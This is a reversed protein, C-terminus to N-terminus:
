TLFGGNISTPDECGGKRIMRKVRDITRLADLKETLTLEDAGQDEYYDRSRAVGDEEVRYLGKNLRRYDRHRWGDKGEDPDRYVTSWGEIVGDRAWSRIQTDSMILNRMTPNAHQIDQPLTLYEIHGNDFAYHNRRQAIRIEDVLLDVNLARESRDFNDFLRHMRDSVFSSRFREKKERLFDLTRASAMKGFRAYASLSNGEIIQM